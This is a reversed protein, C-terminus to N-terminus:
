NPKNQTEPTSDILTKETSAHKYTFAKAGQRNYSHAIKITRYTTPKYQHRDTHRLTTELPSIVCLTLISKIGKYSYFIPLSLIRDCLRYLGLFPVTTYNQEVIRLQPSFFLDIRCPPFSQYLMDASLGGLQFSGGKGQNLISRSIQHRTCTNLCRAHPLAHCYYDMVTAIISYKQNLAITFRILNDLEFYMTTSYHGPNFQLM